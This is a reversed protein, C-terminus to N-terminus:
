WTGAPSTCRTTGDWTVCLHHWVNASVSTTTLSTGAGSSNFFVFSLAGSALGYVTWERDVSNGKYYIVDYNRAADFKYWVCWSMSGTTGANYDSSHPVTAPSNTGDFILSTGIDASDWTTSGSITGDNAGTSIDKATTGTGDTLPWFGVLGSSLSNTADLTLRSAPYPNTFSM